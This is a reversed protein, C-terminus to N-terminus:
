TPVPMNEEQRATTMIDGARKRLADAQGTYDLLEQRLNRSQGETRLGRKPGGDSGGASEVCLDVLNTHVM